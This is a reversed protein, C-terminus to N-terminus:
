AAKDLRKIEQGQPMAKIMQDLSQNLVPHVWDPAIEQLPYLVFAREHMRAHPVRLNVTEIVKDHYALLDLDLARAANQEYRQRGAKSEIDSIVNLIEEASLVTEVSCVANHYWPQDSVPVPASVWISSFKLVKINRSEFFSASARLSQDPSGFASDLNAGLGILIM